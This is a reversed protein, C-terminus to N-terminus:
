EKLIAEASSTGIYSGVAAGIGVIVLGTVPAFPGTWPAIAAAAPAFAEAGAFTGAWGSGEIITQEGKNDSNSINEYSSYLGFAGLALGGVAVGTVVRNTKWHRVPITKSKLPDIKNLVKRSAGFTLNRSTTKYQLRKDAGYQSYSNWNTQYGLNYSAGAYVIRNTSNPFSLIGAGRAGTGNDTRKETVTVEDLQLSQTKTNPDYFYLDKSDRYKDYEKGKPCTPCVFSSPELGFYDIYNIPSNYNFQYPSWSEQTESMPDVSGWRGISADYWRAGYDSWNLSHDVNIEKGNYQYGNDKAADNMLWPGEHNM